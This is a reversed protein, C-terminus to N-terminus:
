KVETPRAFVQAGLAILAPFCVLVYRPEPTELTTLFATRLLLFLALFVIATRSVPNSRWLRAAGWVGLGCYFLNLVFFLSTVEQDMPDDERM